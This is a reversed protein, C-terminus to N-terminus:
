VPESNSLVLRPKLVSVLETLPLAALCEKQVRQPAQDGPYQCRMANVYAVSRVTEGLGDWYQHHYTAVDWGIVAGSRLLAAPVFMLKSLEQLNRDLM